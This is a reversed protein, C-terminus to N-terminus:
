HPVTLTAPDPLPAPQDLVALILAAAAAGSETLAARTLADDPALTARQDLLGRVTSSGVSGNAGDSTVIAATGSAFRANRAYEVSDAESGQVTAQKVVAGSSLDVIRVEVVTSVRAYSSVLDYFLPVDMPCVSAYHSGDSATKTCPHSQQGVTEIARVNPDDHDIQVAVLTTKAQYRAVAKIAAASADPLSAEDVIRLFASGDARLAKGVAAALVEKASPVPVGSTNAVPAVALKVEACSKATALVAAGDKVEFLELAAMADAVGQRCAGASVFYRALALHIDGARRAGDHGGGAEVAEKFHGIAARWHAAALDDEAWLYWAQPLLQPCTKFDAVFSQAATCHAIADGWSRSEFAARALTHEDDAALNAMEDIKADVDITPTSLPVEYTGLANTLRKLERYSTLAGPYDKAAELSASRDVKQRYGADAEARLGEAAKELAKKTAGPTGLAELYSLAAMYHDGKEAYEAGERNARMADGATLLALSAGLLCARLISMRM